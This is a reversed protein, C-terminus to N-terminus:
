HWRLLGKIGTQQQETALDHQVRHGVFQLVVPKGTRWQRGSSAWVGTWQHWGVMVDETAGKDEQGWDKGADPDRGILQKKQGAMDIPLFHCLWWLNRVELHLHPSGFPFVIGIIWCIDSGRMTIAFLQPYGLLLWRGCRGGKVILLPNLIYVILFCTKVGSLQPAYSLFSNLSGLPKCRGMCLVTNTTWDHRVRQSGWPSYGVLNRQEHSEGPLFVPTSLWERRWSTKEVWPDFGSRKCQM